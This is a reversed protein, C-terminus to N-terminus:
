RGPHTDLEAYFIGQERGNKGLGNWVAFGRGDDALGVVHDPRYHRDLIVPRSLGGDRQWHIERLSHPRHASGSQNFVMARRGNGAVAVAAGWAGRRVFRVPKGFHGGVPATAAGVGNPEGDGTHITWAATVEGVPDTALEVFAGNEDIVEPKTFRGGPRLYSAAVGLEGRYGSLVAVVSDDPQLAASVGSTTWGPVRAAPELGNARRLWVHAGSDDDVLVMARGSRNIDLSVYSPDKVPVEFAVNLGGAVSGMLVRVRGGTLWAVAADGERAAAVDLLRGPRRLARPEGFRGGDSLAFRVRGDDGNWAVITNGRRDHALLPSGATADHLHALTQRRRFGTTTGTAGFAVQIRKDIAKRKGHAPFVFNGEEGRTWAAVANGNRSVAVQPGFAGADPRVLTDSAAAGAPLSVVAATLLVLTRVRM